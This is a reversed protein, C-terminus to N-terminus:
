HLNKPVSRLISPHGCTDLTARHKKAIASIKDITETDSSAGRNSLATEVEWLVLELKARFYDQNPIHESM